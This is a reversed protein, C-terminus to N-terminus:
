ESDCSVPPLLHKILLDVKHDVKEILEATHSKYDILKQNLHRNNMIQAQMEEKMYDLEEKLKVINNHYLNIAWGISGLLSSLLAGGIYMLIPSM